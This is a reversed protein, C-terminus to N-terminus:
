SKILRLDNQTWQTQPASYKDAYYAFVPLPAPPTDLAAAKQASLFLDVNIRPM